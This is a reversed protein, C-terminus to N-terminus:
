LFSNITKKLGQEITNKPFWNFEKKSKNINAYLKLPEDDRMKIEGIRPRSNKFKKIIFKIIKIIKIPTGSGANYIGNKLNVKNMCKLILNIFDDIYLFDRTQAGNSCAFSRNKKCQSIKYPILRNKEQKPGYILFPRLIIYNIEKKSCNDMIYRTALLKSRGYVSKLNKVQSLYTEKIPSKAFGYEVSSGLQIFRKIKKKIIFNVLKKCGLFHSEFVKKKKSHDIYGALNIIVDIKMDKFKYTNVKNIDGFLYKVKKVKRSLTPKKTSFSIVKYKKQICKKALHFGVFGTGGLILITKKM